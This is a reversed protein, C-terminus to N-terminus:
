RRRQSLMLGAIAAAVTLGFGSLTMAIPVGQGECLAYVGLMALVSLNENFGQVAISRGSSLLEHGRHQLLANLPVVMAGGVAGVAALLAAALPLSHVQAVVPMLLGLAVGAALCQKARHLPVWRGAASAGAIVGVAVAAQLYAAEDLRLGLADGAWRLVAFQLVAGVGWFITTAALSLGGDRDRWLTRNAARFEGVLRPLDRPLASRAVGSDLIGANLASSLGYIVLLAALSAALDGAGLQWRAAEPGAWGLWQPSVLGGGLVAGLLAACVVSVEIWANAAVLGQPPVLETILGYKAPAYAAAGIGVVTLAAVPHLGAALLAVGLMKVLNMSAMVRGKAFADALPGVVPALAVYSVMLGVKLLPAWWAPQGQRVLLAIAVILLANDALASAFQAAIVLRFGRPLAAPTYASPCPRAELTDPRTM